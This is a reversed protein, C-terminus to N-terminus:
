ASGLSVMPRGQADFAELHSTLGRASPRTVLWAEALSDSDLTLTLANSQLSLSDPCRRQFREFCECHAHMGAGNLLSVETHQRHVCLRELALVFHQTTIPQSFHGAVARCADLRSLQHRHLLAAFDDDCSMARWETLLQRDAPLNPETTTEICRAFSPIRDTRYCDLLTLRARSPERLYLRHLVRGFRDFIQVCPLVEDREQPQERSLAVWYWSPLLLQVALAHDDGLSAHHRNGTVRCADLRSALVAHPAQSIVELPGLRPLLMVLDCPTIALTTVGRGLRAAQIDGESTDLLRALSRSDIHPARQRAEQYVEFLTDALVM